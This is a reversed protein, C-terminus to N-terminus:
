GLSFMVQISVRMDVPKGKKTGPKFRWQKVSKIAQEDVGYKEDVSKTVTVHGVRGDKRVIADLGVTGQIRAERAEKPYEANVTSIVVPKTEPAPDQGLAAVDILRALLLTVTLTRTFSRMRMNEAGALRVTRALDSSLLSFPRESGIEGRKECQM